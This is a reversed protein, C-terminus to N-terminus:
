ATDKDTLTIKILRRADYGGFETEAMERAAQLRKGLMAGHGRPITPRRAVLFAM